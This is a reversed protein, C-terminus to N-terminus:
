IGLDIKTGVIIYDRILDQIIGNPGKVLKTAAMLNKYQESTLDLYIRVSETKEQKVMNRKMYM